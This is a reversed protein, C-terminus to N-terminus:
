RLNFFFGSQGCGCYTNKPATLNIINLLCFIIENARLGKTISEMEM